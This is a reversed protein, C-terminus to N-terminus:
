QRLEPEYYIGLTRSPTPTISSGPSDKFLPDAALVGAWGPSTSFGSGMVVPGLFALCAETERCPTAVGGAEPLRGQRM